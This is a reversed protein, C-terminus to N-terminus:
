RPVEQGRARITEALAKAIHWGDSGYGQEAMEHDCLKACAEREAKVAEDPAATSAGNTLYADITSEFWGTARGGPIIPFPKPFRGSAVMAYIHSASIGGFRERLDRMRLIRNGIFAQARHRTKVNISM